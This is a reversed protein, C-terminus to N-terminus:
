WMPPSRWPTVFSAAPCNSADIPLGVLGHAMGEITSSVDGHPSEGLGIVGESDTVEVITTTFSALTGFSFRYPAVMPVNVPTATSTASTSM